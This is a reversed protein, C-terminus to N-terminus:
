KLWKLKKAYNITIVFAVISLLSLGIMTINSMTEPNVPIVIKKFKAEIIVDASPMTFTYDKFYVVNGSADTVKVVDLVYGEKPTVTFKVEFNKFSTKEATITGNGDTKVEIKYPKSFYMLQTALPNSDKTSATIFGDELEVFFEPYFDGNKPYYNYIDDKELLNGKTDFVGFNVEESDWSGLSAIIVDGYPIVAKAFVHGLEKEWVPEGDKEYWMISEQNNYEVRTVLFGGKYPISDTVDENTSGDWDFAYHMYFEHLDTFQKLSEEMEEDWDYRPVDYCDDENFKKDIVIVRQEDYYSFYWFDMIFFQSKGSVVYFADDEADSLSNYAEYEFSDQIKGKSNLTLVVYTNNRENKGFAYYKGDEKIIKALKTNKYTEESVFEGKKNFYLINAKINNGNTFGVALYGDETDISDIIGSMNGANWDYSWVHKYYESEAKITSIGVIFVSIFLILYKGIREM